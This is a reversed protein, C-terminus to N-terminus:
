RGLYYTPRLWACPWQMSFHEQLMKEATCLAGEVWAQQDSYAEGCIHIAENKLPQRMYPMTSAVDYCAKWAHYGGGYPNHNWNKYATTYPQPISDLGHLEKLQALAHAVMRQPAQSYQYMSESEKIDHQTIGPIVRPQYLEVGQYEQVIGDVECDNSPPELSQWFGVTRMDNYSALLSSTGFEPDTGFYYCQRMPLDTISRGCNLGRQRSWWPKSQGSEYFGMILKFAPQGSVSRLSHCLQHNHGSDFFFNDCNLLELARRPMALIIRNAYIYHEQPQAPNSIDRMVLRYRCDSEGSPTHGFNVLKSQAYLRGGMEQYRKCLQLAIQDFGGEITRYSNDCMFDGVVYPLAEAANWNITNSYYGSAQALLEYGEHGMQDILLNWFGIDQLRAGRDPGKYYKLTPKIVDWGRRDKPREHHNNARLVNDVLEDFLDDPHKGDYTPDIFFRSHFGPERWQDECFRQRRLYYLNKTKDGMSFPISTLNLHNVLGNMIEHHAMFRKAGLESIVNPMGPLKISFLRGGIRNSMEFIGIDLHDAHRGVQKEFHGSLLRWGSYLGSVGAGVIAVDLELKESKILTAHDNM